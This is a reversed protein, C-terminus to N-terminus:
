LGRAIKWKIPNVSSAHVRVLMEDPRSPLPTSVQGFHLLDAGGFDQLVMARSIPPITPIEQM